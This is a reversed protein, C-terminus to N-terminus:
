VEAFLSHSLTSSNTFITVTESSHFLEECDLFRGYHEVKRHPAHIFKTAPSNNRVSPYKALDPNVRPPKAGEEICPTCRKRTAPSALNTQFFVFM